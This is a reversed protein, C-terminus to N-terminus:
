NQVKNMKEVMKLMIQHIEIYVGDERSSVGVGTDNRDIYKDLESDIEVMISTYLGRKKEEDIEDGKYRIVICVMGDVEEINVTINYLTRREWDWKEFAPDEKKTLGSRVFEEVGVFIANNIRGLVMSFLNNISDLKTAFPIGVM